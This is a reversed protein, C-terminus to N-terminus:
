GSVCRFHTRVRVRPWRSFPFAPFRFPDLPDVCLQPFTPHAPAILSEMSLTVGHSMQLRSGLM